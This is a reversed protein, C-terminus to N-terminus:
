VIRVYRSFQITIATDIPSCMPDGCQVEQISVLAESRISEPIIELSWREINKFAAKRDEEKKKNEQVATPLFMTSIM